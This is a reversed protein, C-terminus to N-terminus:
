NYLMMPKYKPEGEKKDKRIIWKWLMVKISRGQLLPSIRTQAKMERNFENMWSDCCFREKACGPVRLSGGIYDLEAKIADCQADTPRTSNMSDEQFSIARQSGMRRTDFCPITIAVGLVLLGM